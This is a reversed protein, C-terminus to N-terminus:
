ASERGANGAQEFGVPRTPMRITVSNLIKARKNKIIVCGLRRLSLLGEDLDVGNQLTSALKTIERASGDQAGMLAEFVSVANTTPAPQDAVATLCQLVLM